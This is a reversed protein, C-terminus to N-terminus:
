NKRITIIQGVQLGHSAVDPNQNKIDDVSVGYKKSLSFLTEKPAVEHTVAEPSAAPEQGAASRTLAPTTGSGLSSESEGLARVSPIQVVQGVKLSKVGENNMKIEDVSIGYKRSISYFTDGPEVVHQVGGARDVVVPQADKKARALTSGASENQVVEQSAEAVPDEQVVVAAKKPVPIQLVMGQRIGDIAFKNLKYILAPDALYKKSLMRVTEGMQVTHSVIEFEQNKNQAWGTLVACGLVFFLM